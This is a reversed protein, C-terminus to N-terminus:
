ASVTMLAEWRTTFCHSLNAQRMRWVPSSGATAGFRVMGLGRDRNVQDLVSMVAKQKAGVEPAPSLLTAQAEAGPRLDTVM